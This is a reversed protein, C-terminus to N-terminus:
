HTKEHLGFRRCGACWHVGVFRGPHLGNLRHWFLVTAGEDGDRFLDRAAPYPIGVDKAIARLIGTVIKHHELSHAHAAELDTM